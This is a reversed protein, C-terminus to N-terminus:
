WHCQWDTSDKRQVIWATKRVPYWCSWTTLWLVLAFDISSWNTYVGCCQCHVWLTRTEWKAYQMTKATNHHSWVHGCLILTVTSSSPRLTPEGSYMDNEDIAVYKLVSLLALFSSCAWSSSAPILGVWTVALTERNERSQSPLSHWKTKFNEYVVLM